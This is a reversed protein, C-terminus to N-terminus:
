KLGREKDVMELSSTIRAEVDSINPMKMNKVIEASFESFDMRNFNLSSIEELTLGGCDPAYGDGFDLDLQKRAEQQFVKNFINGFCCFHHKNVHFPRTGTTSKGVYICLNKVRKKQLAIEDQNCHAGLHEGWGRVRCCSMYGVPKKRCYEHMGSFLNETGGKMQSAAYLKSASELIGEDMEYSKDVCNGDICPIGKCVIKAAEDGKIRSKVVDRKLVGFDREKCSFEKRQNVCNGNDDWMLCDKVGVEYCHEYQACDNKSPFNCFKKYSYKWCPRSVKIGDIMKEGSDVCVEEYKSCEARGRNGGSDRWNINGDAYILKVHFMVMVWFYMTRAM